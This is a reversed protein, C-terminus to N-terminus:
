ETSVSDGVRDQWARLRAKLKERTAVAEPSTSLDNLELPDNKLDFLQVRDVQPYEIFKWRDTRIMRQFNRFYGFVESRVQSVKGDLM